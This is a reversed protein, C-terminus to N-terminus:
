SSQQQTNEAWSALVPEQAMVHQVLRMADAMQHVRRQEVTEDPLSRAAWEAIMLRDVALTSLNREAPMPHREMSSCAYLAEARYELMVMKVSAVFLAPFGHRKWFWPELVM